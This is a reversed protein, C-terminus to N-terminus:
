FAVAEFYHVANANVTGTLTCDTTNSTVTFTNTQTTYDHFGPLEM